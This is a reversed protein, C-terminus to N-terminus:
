IEPPPQSKGGHALYIKCLRSSQHNDLKPMLSKCQWVIQKGWSYVNIKWSCMKTDELIPGKMGLTIHTGHLLYISISSWLMTAAINPQVQVYFWAQQLSSSTCRTITFELYLHTQHIRTSICIHSIHSYLCSSPIPGPYHTYNHSESIPICLFLWCFTQYGMRSVRLIFITILLRRSVKTDSNNRGPISRAYNTSIRFM